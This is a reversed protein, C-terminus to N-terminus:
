TRLYRLHQLVQKSTGEVMFGKKHTLGVISIVKPIKELSRSHLKSAGSNDM